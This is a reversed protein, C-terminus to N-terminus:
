LAAFAASDFDKLVVIWAALENETNLVKPDQDIATNVELITGALPTKFESVAKEAELEVFGEDAALVQGVKPLNAFTVEGLDEQSEATLGIKLQDDDLMLWLGAKKKMESM